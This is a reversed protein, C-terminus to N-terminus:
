VTFMMAPHHPKPSSLLLVGRSNCWESGDRAWSLHWSQYHHLSEPGLSRVTEGRAGIMGEQAELVHCVCTLTARINSERYHHVVFCGCSVFCQCVPTLLASALSLMLAASHLSRLLGSCCCQASHFWCLLATWFLSCYVTSAGAILTKERELTRSEPLPFGQPLSCGGQLRAEPVAAHGQRAASIEAM